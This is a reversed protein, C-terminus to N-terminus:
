AGKLEDVIAEAAARPDAAAIIPRGVVIYSAGARIAESPGTTRTQDDPTAQASAGRIGPTVILFRDGCAERIAATEQPSAVVGDMGAAQTLRALAVVQDLMPRQVGIERLV